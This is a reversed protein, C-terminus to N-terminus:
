FGVTTASPNINGFIVTFQLLNNIIEIFNLTIDM